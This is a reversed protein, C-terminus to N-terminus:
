NIIRLKNHQKEYILPRYITFIKNQLNNYQIKDYNENRFIGSYNYRDNLKIKKVENIISKYFDIRNKKKNFLEINLINILLFRILIYPHAKNNFTPLLEYTLSNYINMINIHNKRKLKNDYYTLKIITHKLRFDNIYYIYGSKITIKINEKKYKELLINNIVQFFKDIDNNNQIILDISENYDIINDNNKHDKIIISNDNKYEVLSYYGILLHNIHNINEIIDKIINYKIGEYINNQNKYEEYDTEIFKTLLKDSIDILDNNKNDIITEPKYLIQFINILELYSPLYLNDNIKEFKINSTMEKNNTFLLSVYIYPENNIKIIFEHNALGTNLQIFKNKKYLINTLENALKLPYNSYLKFINTYKIYNSDLLINYDSIIINNIFCYNLIEKNFDYDIFKRIKFESLLILHEINKQQNM